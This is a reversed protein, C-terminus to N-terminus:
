KSNQVKFKSSTVRLNGQNERREVGDDIDVNSAAGPPRRAIERAGVESAARPQQLKPCFPQRAARKEIERRCHGVICSRRVGHQDDVVSGVNSHQGAGGTNV